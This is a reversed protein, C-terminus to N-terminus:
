SAPFAPFARPLDWKSLSRYRQQYELYVARWSPLPESIVSGCLYPHDPIAHVELRCPSSLSLYDARPETHLYHAVVPSDMTPVGYYLHRQMFETDEFFRLDAQYGCQRLLESRAVFSNHGAYSLRDNTLVLKREFLSARCWGTNLRTLGERLLVLLAHLCRLPHFVDDADLCSFFPAELQALAQNRCMGVGRNVDSFLLSVLWSNAQAESELEELLAEALQRDQPDGDISILCEIEVGLQCRLSQLTQRLLEARGRHLPIVVALRPRERLLSVAEGSSLLLMLEGYLPLSMTRVVPWYGADFDLLVQRAQELEASKLWPLAALASVLQDIRELHALLEAQM